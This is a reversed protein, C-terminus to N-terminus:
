PPLTTPHYPPLTTHLICIVYLTCNQMGSVRAALEAVLADEEPIPDQFPALATCNFFSM